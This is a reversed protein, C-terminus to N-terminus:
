GANWIQLILVKNGHNLMLFYFLPLLVGEKPVADYILPFLQGFTCHILWILWFIYSSFDLFPDLSWRVAVM